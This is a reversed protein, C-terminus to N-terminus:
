RCRATLTSWDAKFLGPVWDLLRTHRPAHTQQDITMIPAALFLQTDALPLSLQQGLYLLLLLHEVLDHSLLLLHYHLVSNVNRQSAQKKQRKM